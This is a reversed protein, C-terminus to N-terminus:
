GRAPIRGERMGKIKSIQTRILDILQQDKVVELLATLTQRDGTDRVYQGISRVTAGKIELDIIDLTAWRKPMSREFVEWRAKGIRNIGPHLSLPHNDIVIDKERNRGKCEQYNIIRFGATTNVKWVYPAADAPPPPTIAAPDWDNTPTPGAETGEKSM